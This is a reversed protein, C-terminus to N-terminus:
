KSKRCVVKRMAASVAGRIGKQRLSRVLPLVDWEWRRRDKAPKKLLWALSFAFCLRIQHPRHAELMEKLEKYSYGMQDVIEEGLLQLYDNALRWVQPDTIAQVWKEPTRPVPRTHSYVEGKDGHRWKPVNHGGYEVIRPVFDVGLRECVEQITSEPNMVLQEYHVVTGREGLLEAGKLLLRPARILDHKYEHLLFWNERIWTRLISCLVALPNRLIIIYHAQPFIRCLEPIIFYYQPTKDIFYKKKSGALARGYLYAYMRRVGEIYEDKGGPLAKLFGKVAVRASQENYEAQYGEHRLAYLPHLMLWPESVTHIDPHGGLIRQLLTSGARPQSILFVLNQGQPGISMYDIGCEYIM